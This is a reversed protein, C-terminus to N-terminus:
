AGAVAPFRGTSRSGATTWSGGILLLVSVSATGAPPVALIVSGVRVAM